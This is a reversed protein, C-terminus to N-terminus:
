REAGSARHHHGGSKFAPDDFATKGDDASFGKLLAPNPRFKEPGGRLQRPSSLIVGAQDNFSHVVGRIQIDQGKLPALDGVDKRDQRLSIISFVCQSDPTEPSCVDLFRTGDALEVVDYVHASVCVDQNLHHAAETTARCPRASALLAAPWIAAVALVLACSASNRM